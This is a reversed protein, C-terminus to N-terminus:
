SEDEEDDSPAPGGVELRLANPALDLEVTSAAVSAAHLAEMTPSYHATVLRDGIIVEEEGAPDDASAQLQVTTEPPVAAPLPNAFQVAEPKCILQDIVDYDLPEADLPCHNVWINILLTIRQNHTSPPAPATDSDTKAKKHAPPKGDEVDDHKKDVNAGDCKGTSKNRSRGPFFTAPAGHLLRGDFALHRGRQPHCLWGKRIDGNLSHELSVQQTSPSSSSSSSSSQKDGPQPSRQHLVLTPAGHDTLYTVTAVRPHLFLNTVQDELGYDADFHLGVEDSEEEEEEDDDDNSSLSASPHAQKEDDEDDLVLTWWEAGSAERRMCHPPLVATHAEFVAQVIKELACRPQPLVAPWFYTVGASYAATPHADDTDNDRTRATFVTRCDAYLDDWATCTLTTKPFIRVPAVPLPEKYLNNTTNNNNNNTTTTGQKEEEGDTLWPSGDPRRLAPFGDRIVFDQNSSANNRTSTATANTEPMSPISSLQQQQQQQQQGVM